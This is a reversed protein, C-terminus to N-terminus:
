GTRRRLLDLSIHGGFDHHEVVVYDDALANLYAPARDPVHRYPESVVWVRPAGESAEALEAVSREPLWRRLSGLEEDTGILDLEATRGEARWNAEFPLRVDDTPFVIADGPRADRELTAIADNWPRDVDSTLIVVGLLSSAVLMASAVPIRRAVGDLHIAAVAMLIAIGFASAVTYRAVQSPRLISVGLLLLVSLVGWTIPQVARFRELPSTASIGRRVLITTGGLVAVAMTWALPVVPSTLQRLMDPVEDWRPPVIWAGSGENGLGTAALLALVGGTIAYGSFAKGLVNRGPRAVLLAVAQAGLQLVALGHAFPLAACCAAHLVWWSRSSPQELGHDLAAWSAVVLLCVLAYSRLELSLDFVMYASCALLGARLAIARGYQRLALATFAVVAGAMTSVSLLRLWWTAESIRLWPALLAYYAGMTGHEGRLSPWLRHAAALTYGEDLWYERAPATVALAVLLLAPVLVTVLDRRPDNAEAPRDDVESGPSPTGDLPGPDDSRDSRRLGRADVPPPGPSVHEEVPTSTPDVTM